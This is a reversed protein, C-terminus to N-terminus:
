LLIKLERSRYEEKTNITPKLERQHLAELTLLYTEGRSSSQLIDIDKESLTTNCQSLHTRMPGPKQIHEKFRFQLHRATEGVYCATCSPCVIKYVVGSKLMKEVPEKLSPLVTKLKRLTMVVVCPAQAKHLARAYDDTCRGRYQVKLHFKEAKTSSLSSHVSNGKSEDRLIKELTERIIPDYFTPPYQNLELIRKAKELSQHFNGWSSCAQHIRYVFGSVVSRKYRKPALAHYNM